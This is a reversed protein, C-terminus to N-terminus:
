QIWLSPLREILWYTAVGGLLYSLTSISTMAAGSPSTMVGITSLRGASAYLSRALTLSVLIIALQGAEVGLNFFLLAAPVDGPNLGLNGLASAFGFGHILGFLFAVVWPYHYSLSFHGRQALLAERALLVISLAILIEVPAIPISVLGLSAAALTVSHALTFATITKLYRATKNNKDHLLTSGSSAPNAGGLLLMLGVVFLLHDFGFMIHEIGLEFYRLALRGLAASPARVEALSVEVFVGDGRFYSSHSSGDRWNAVLVVGALPWPFLLTDDSSLAPNCSFRYSSATPTLGSCREPLVNDINFLPPVKADVISLSYGFESEATSEAHEDLFLRAVGTVDIDHARSAPAIMLLVVFVSALRSCAKAFSSASPTLKM